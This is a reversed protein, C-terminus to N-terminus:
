NNSVNEKEKQKLYRIRSERMKQRTEESHTKGLHAKRNQERIEVSHVKGRNGAGIKKKTEESLPQRNARKRNPFTIIGFKGKNWSSKGKAAESMKRKTEESRPVGLRQARLIQKTEESCYLSNKLVDYQRSTIKGKDKHALYWFARSM